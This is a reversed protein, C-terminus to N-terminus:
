EGYTENAFRIMESQQVRWYSGAIKTGKLKGSTIWETVTKRSVDFIKAIQSTSLLPDEETPILTM